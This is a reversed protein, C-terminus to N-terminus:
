IFLLLHVVVWISASMAGNHLCIRELLAPLMNRIGIAGSMGNVERRGAFGEGLTLGFAQEPIIFM